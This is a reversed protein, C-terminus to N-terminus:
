GTETGPIYTENQPDFYDLGFKRAAPRIFMRGDDYGSWTVSFCILSGSINNKMPGDAWITDETETLDPYRALLFEVFALMTESAPEDATQLARVRDSFDDRRPDLGLHPEWCLFSASM